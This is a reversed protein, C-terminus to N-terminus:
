SSQPVLREQASQSEEGRRRPCRYPAPCSVAEEAARRGLLQDPRIGGIMQMVLFLTLVAGLTVALGTYGSWFFTVSFLVLYVLQCLGMERLAFKWGVFHRAYTTLLAISVSASLLFAWLIEVHDVLYAFLLHFAFFALGFFFYHLPHLEKKNRAAVMAVVFFFFLLSLPAFFTMEAALPGPNLKQPLVLGIASNTVLNKFEWRGKWAQGSVSHSSPSLGDSPFDVAGFNTSAEFGFDLIRDKSASLSYVFRETGRSRYRFRYERSQGPAFTEAVEVKGPSLKTALPRSKRSVSLGDYYANGVQLPFEITAKLARQSTNKFTYHAGFRLGYTPFWLLGKKRQELVLEAKARTKVLKVAGEGGQRPLGVSGAAGRPQARKASENGDDVRALPPKQVIPEGWLDHVQAQLDRSTEGSRVLLTSGLVMWAAACGFWIIAIAFLKGM